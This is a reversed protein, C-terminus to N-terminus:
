ASHDGGTTWQDVAAVGQELASYRLRCSPARDAIDRLREFGRRGLLNYNYSNDALHVLTRAHAVPEVSLQAEPSWSPIVIWGVPVATTDRVDAESPRMYAVREGETNDVEPSLCAEPAWARIVALAGDKLAVPRPAPVVLGTAPEILARRRNKQAPRMSHRADDHVEAGSASM